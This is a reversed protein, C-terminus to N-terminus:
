TMMGFKLGYLSTSTLIDKKFVYFTGSKDIKPLGEDNATIIGFILDHSASKSNKTLSARASLTVFSFRPM